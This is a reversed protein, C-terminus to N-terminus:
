GLRQHLREAGSLIWGDGDRVARSLYNALDAGGKPETLKQHNTKEGRLMPVLFKQKQEETGWVILDDFVFTTSTSRIARARTLEEELITAHAATLGGGGYEKPLYSLAM